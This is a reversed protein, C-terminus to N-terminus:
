FTDASTYVAFLAASPIEPIYPKWDDEEQKEEEEQETPREGEVFFIFHHKKTLNINFYSCKISFIEKIIM